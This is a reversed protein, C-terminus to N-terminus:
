RDISSLYSKAKSFFGKNQMEKQKNIEFKKIKNKESLCNLDETFVSLRDDSSENEQTENRKVTKIDKKKNDEFFYKPNNVLSSFIDESYGNEGPDGYINKIFYSLVFSLILPLYSNLNFAFISALFHMVGVIIIGRHKVTGM